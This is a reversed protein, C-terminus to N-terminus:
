INTIHKAKIIIIILFDILNNKKSQRSINKNKTTKITIM